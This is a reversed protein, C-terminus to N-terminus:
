RVSHCVRALRLVTKRSVFAPSIITDIRVDLQERGLPSYRGANEEILWHMVLMLGAHSYTAAYM